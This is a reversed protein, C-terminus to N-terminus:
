DIKRNVAFPLDKCFFVAVPIPKIAMRLQAKRASRVVMAPGIGGNSSAAIANRNPPRVPEAVHGKRFPAIVLKFWFQRTQAM